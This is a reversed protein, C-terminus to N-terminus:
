TVLVSLIDASLSLVTFLSFRVTSGQSDKKQSVLWINVKVQLHRWLEYYIGLQQLLQPHLYVVLFFAAGLSRCRMRSSDSPASM